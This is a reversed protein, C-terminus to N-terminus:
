IINNIEKKVRQETMEITYKWELLNINHEKLLRRKKEDLIQRKEFSQQGGFFDISEYHQRGQYEIALNLSPIFIDIELGELWKPRITREVKHDPYLDKVINFLRSESAFREEQNCIYCGISQRIRAAVPAQWGRHEPNDCKWWVSENSGTSFDSPLKPYNKDLDFQKAIKPANIELNNTVSVNHGSCFPCDRNRYTRSYVQTKWEHDPGLDCKWWITKNSNMFLSEVKIDANLIPHFQEAIRPYNNILSNTVSIKKGACFPCNTNTKVRKRIEAEWEHDPGLDCKWWVKKGSFQAFDKPHKGENKTPHWEIVLEPYTDLTINTKQPM